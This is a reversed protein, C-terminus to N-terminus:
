KGDIKEELRDFRKDIKAEHDDFRKNFEAKKVFDERIESIKDNQKDIKAEMKLKQSQNFRVYLTGITIVVGIMLEAMYKFIGAEM